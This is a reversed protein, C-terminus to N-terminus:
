QCESLRNITQGRVPRWHRGMHSFAMDINLFAADTASVETMLKSDGDAGEGGIVHGAKVFALPNFDNDPGASATPIVGVGAQDATVESFM